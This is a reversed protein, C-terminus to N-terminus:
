GPGCFNMGPQAGISGDAWIITSRDRAAGRRYDYIMEDGVAEATVGLGDIADCVNGTQDVYYDFGAHDPSPMAAVSGNGTTQHKLAFNTVSLTSLSEAFSVAPGYVVDFAMGMMQLWAARHDAPWSNRPVPPLKAIMAALLPDLESVIAKRRGM